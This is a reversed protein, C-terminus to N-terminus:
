ESRLAEMPDVQTTRRALSKSAFLAVGIPIVFAAGFSPQDASSVGYFRGAASDCIAFGVDHIM